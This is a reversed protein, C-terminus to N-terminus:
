SLSPAQYAPDASSSADNQDARQDNCGDSEEATRIGGETDEARRRAMLVTLLAGCPL